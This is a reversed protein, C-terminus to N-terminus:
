DVINIFDDDSHDMVIIPRYVHGRELDSLAENIETLRYRKTILFNLTIGASRFLDHMRPIDVDLKSGGGWSGSINKGSILEHPSLRIMDGEPPHSAFLLKGEKKRIVSFGLEITKSAGASEICYEAGIGETVECVFEKLDTRNTNVLHNAGIEGATKLKEDSIDAAIINKVGLSKLAMLASLGIGGLGLVVVSVNSSINIENMAMGAGTPLACGFLAAQDFPLSEPKLFVRNESVVSYNSFTTVAGSNIVQDEVDYKAGSVDHGDGKIWSLIVEDGPKVKNVDVGVSVVVGSGEHGLLHPLWPDQGRAGSVEM